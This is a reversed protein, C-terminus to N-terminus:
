VPLTLECFADSVDISELCGITRCENLAAREEGGELM